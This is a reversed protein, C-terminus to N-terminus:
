REFSGPFLDQDRGEDAIMPYHDGKVLMPSPTDAASEQDKRHLRFVRM